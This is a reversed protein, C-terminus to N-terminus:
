NERADETLQYLIQLAERPSLDDVKLENLQTLVPHPQDRSPLSEDVSTTPVASFLDPQQPDRAYREFMILRERAVQLVDAPVGALKAVQIGYSQSAPGNEVHYLFIIDGQHETATLHINDVGECHQPMTTMEFYHTAFLTLARSQRALHQACAWALALGDFTSTGRGIEDLLVLSQHTANHLINATETMEVMFTSRGGTLDDAAGIRTFIRDIPGVSVKNAPVYSGCFALLCIIATQRMYTSKGGMNPGTLILMHRDQRLSLDNAIFPVRSAAQVVPHWGGEISIGETENFTPPTLELTHAREALTSLVDVTALATVLNRLKPLHLATHSLVREFLSKELRLARSQASLAQEEFVKLEPTIYREANKLTQRRMYETPIELQGSRSIEIYYGHVRNYGVKLSQSGTRLREQQELNQLWAASNETLNKIEDLDEDFGAKIFEGDRITAPPEDVIARELWNTLEPLPDLNALLSANLMGDMPAIHHLLDPVGQLATQLRKLDRPNASGLGIRALIRDLDGTGHLVEQLLQYAQNNIAQTVWTQREKVQAVDRLPANLWKALLRAGMPTQTTNFLAFLTLDQEGNVRRDIELNRRTHLDLGIQQADGVLNLRTIFKLEQCQTQQAYKLAASAAALLPSQDPLGNMQCVDHEFHDDLHIKAGGLTFLQPDLVRATPRFNELPSDASIIIETPQKQELWDSLLTRNAHLCCEIHTATLDLLASALPGNEGDQHVAMLTSNQLAGVLAEDTLTGPTIVRQVRREVPGKSTAPDGIQECIAVSRGLRVLRALYNDAAHFPVGCMPIPEGGSQARATLTIDLLEAAVKADNFFLEYFDGMRYFLLDDPHEAKIGMYQRMMPTHPSTQNPDAPAETM